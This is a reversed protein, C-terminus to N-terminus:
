RYKKYFKYTQFAALLLFIGPIIWQSAAPTAGIPVTLLYNLFQVFLYIGSFTGISTGIVYWYKRYRGMDIYSENILYLNWGAWFPVQMLNIANFMLGLTFPSYQTLFDNTLLSPETGQIPKSNFFFSIALFILFIISMVEINRVMKKQALLWEAAQLTLLILVFEVVVVGLLFAYLAESGRKQNIESAILNIYGLPLSGILSICFGVM